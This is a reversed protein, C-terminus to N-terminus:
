SDTGIIVRSLLSSGLPVSFLIKVGDFGLLVLDISVIFEFGSVIRSSNLLEFFSQFTVGLIYSKVRVSAGSKDLEHGRNFSEFVSLFTDIEVRSEDFSVALLSGAMVEHFFVVFGDSCVIFSKSEIGGVSFASLSLLLSHIGDVSLRGRSAVILGLSLSVGHSVGFDLSNHL